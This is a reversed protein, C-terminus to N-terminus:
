VLGLASFLVRIEEVESPQQKMMATSTFGHLQEFLVDMTPNQVSKGLRRTIVPVHRAAAAILEPLTAPHLPLSAERLVALALALINAFILSRERGVNCVVYLTLTANSIAHQATQEMWQAATDLTAALFARREEAIKAAQTPNPSTRTLFRLLRTLDSWGAQRLQRAALNEGFQIKSSFDCIQDDGIVLSLSGTDEVAGQMLNLTFQQRPSTRTTLTARLMNTQGSAFPGFTVPQTPDVFFRNALPALITHAFLTVDDPDKPAAALVIVKDDDDSHRTKARKKPREDEDEYEDDDDDDESSSSYFDLALYNM